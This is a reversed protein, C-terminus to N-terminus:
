ERPAQPFRRLYTLAAALRERLREPWGNGDMDPEPVFFITRADGLNLGVEFGPYAQVRYHVWARDVVLRADLSKAAEALRRYAEEEPIAM